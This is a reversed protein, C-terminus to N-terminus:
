AASNVVTLNLTQRWQAQLEDLARERGAADLHPALAVVNFEEYWLWDQGFPLPMTVIEPRRM